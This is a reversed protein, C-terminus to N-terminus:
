RGMKFELFFSAGTQNLCARTSGQIQFMCSDASMPRIPICVGQRGGGSIETHRATHAHHPTDHRSTNHKTTTHKKTTHAHLATRTNRHVCTTKHQVHHTTIHHPATTIDGSQTRRATGCHPTTHRSCRPPARPTIESGRETERYEYAIKVVGLCRKSHFM